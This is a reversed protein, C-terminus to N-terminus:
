HPLECNWALAMSPPPHFTTLEGLAEIVTALYSYDSYPNGTNDNQKLLHLLFELVEDPTFGETDRV